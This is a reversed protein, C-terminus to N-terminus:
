CSGLRLWSPARLRVWHIRPKQWIRACLGFSKPGMAADQLDFQLEPDESVWEFFGLSGSRNLRVEGELPLYHVETILDEGPRTGLARRRKLIFQSQAAESLHQYLPGTFAITGSVGIEREYKMFLNLHDSSWYGKVEHIYLDPAWHLSIRIRLILRNDRISRWNAFAAAAAQGATVAFDLSGVGSAPDSSYVGGDGKWSILDFGEKKLSGQLIEALEIRDAAAAPKSVRSALWQSHGELDM